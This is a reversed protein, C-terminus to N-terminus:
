ARQQGCPEGPHRRPGNRLDRGVLGAEDGAARGPGAPDAVGAAVAASGARKEADLEPLAARFFRPPVVVVALTAIIRNSDSVAVRRAAVATARVVIPDSARG